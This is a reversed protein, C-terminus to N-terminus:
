RPHQRSLAIGALNQARAIRRIRVTAFGSSLATYRALYPAFETRPKLKGTAQGVVFASDGLVRIDRAGLMAAVELADLLAQWEAHDNTGHGIAPRHWVLGRAAVATEMMGPNPRCGGDFFLKLAQEPM